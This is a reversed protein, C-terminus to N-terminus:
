ARLTAQILKGVGDDQLSVMRANLEYAHSADLMNVLEQIPQVSSNEVYGQQVLAPAAVAGTAPAAFRNTGVKQLAAYDPFDVVQLEGRMGGDQWVGGATDIAIPGGVPNLRIPAGGLGLVPAGDTVAVLTGDPGVNLRGDRTYLPGQPSQVTLFGPGQLAVDATNGTQVFPGERFDTYTRGLWLGGSLGALDPNSPGDRRGSEAAPQREALTVMDRKFGVTDANALNNAIVNQRYETTLMGAASQYLGYIM